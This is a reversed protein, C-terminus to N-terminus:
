NLRKRSPALTLNSELPEFKVIIVSVNDCKGEARNLATEILYECAQRPSLDAVADAMEQHSLYPWLGDSCALLVDQPEVQPILHSDTPPEKDTGLCATLINSDPHVRAEEETIKGRNVLEQVYSQDQTRRIMQKANFHYIRSDGSHIWHCDGNPNILFAALTSHPQEDASVATLRIVMHAQHVLQKLFEAGHDSDPSYSEFLQSATLMVQDAAKRGGSLGGMGDAIVALICGPHRPHSILSLQDQQYERDGKHLGTAATLRYAQSM